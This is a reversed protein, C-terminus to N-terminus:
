SAAEQRFARRRLAEFPDLTEQVETKANEDEWCELRLWRQCDKLFTRWDEGDSWPKSEQSKQTHAVYNKAREILLDQTVGKKKLAKEWQVVTSKKNGKRTYTAWFEEFRDEEVAPSEVKDFGPLLGSEGVDTPEGGNPPLPTEEEPEEVPEELDTGDSLTSGTEPSLTLPTEGSLTESTPDAETSLGGRDRQVPLLYINSQSSGNKRKRGTKIVLGLDVLEKMQKWITRETQGTDRALTRVSPWCEFNPNSYAALDMLLLKLIPRDVELTRVWQIAKFAAHKRSDDSM